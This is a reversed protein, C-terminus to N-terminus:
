CVRLNDIMNLIQYDKKSDFKRAFLFRDPLNIIEQFDSELLLEPSSENEKFKMYTCRVDFKTNIKGEGKLHFLITQFFIEDSIFTEEHFKVYKFNSASFELIENIIEIPIAWWPSGWYPVIGFPHKRKFLIKTLYFFQNTQIIKKLSFLNNLSYFSKDWISPILVLDKRKKSLDFKYCKLRQNFITSQPDM